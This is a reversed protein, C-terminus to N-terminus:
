QALYHSSVAVCKRAAKNRREKSWAWIDEAPDVCGVSYNGEETESGDTASDGRLWKKWVFNRHERKAKKPKEFGDMDKGDSGSNYRGLMRREEGEVYGAPLLQL